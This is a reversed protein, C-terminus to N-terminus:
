ATNAGIGLSLTLVAILTFGPHKLLMRVAYRLDQMMDDECRKPQLSLADAFAGVTYWWLRLKHQPNRKGWGARQRERGRLPAEWEQRWDPRLRRPVIVGIFAILWLWLNRNGNRM